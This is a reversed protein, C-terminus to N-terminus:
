LLVIGNYCSATMPLYCLEESTGYCVYGEATSNCYMNNEEGVLSLLAVLLYIISRKMRREGGM